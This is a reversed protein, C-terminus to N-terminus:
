TSDIFDIYTGEKAAL